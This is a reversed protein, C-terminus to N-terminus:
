LELCVSRYRIGSVFKLIKDRLDAVKSFVEDMLRNATKLFIITRESEEMKYWSTESIDQSKGCVILHFSYLVALNINSLSKQFFLKINKFSNAVMTPRWLLTQAKAGTLVTLNLM